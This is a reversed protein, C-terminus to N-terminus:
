AAGAERCHWSEDFLPRLLPGQENSLLHIRDPIGIRNSSVSSDRLFSGCHPNADGVALDSVVSGGGGTQRLCDLFGRSDLRFEDRAAVPDEVHFYVAAQDVALEIRTAEGLVLFHEALQPASAARSSCAFRGSGELRRGAISM